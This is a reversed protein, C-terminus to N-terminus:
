SVVRLSRQRRYQHSLEELLVPNANEVEASVYEFIGEM